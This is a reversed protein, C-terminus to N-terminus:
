PDADSDESRSLVGATISDGILSQMVFLCLFAKMVGSNYGVRHMGVLHEWCFFICAELVAWNVFQVSFDISAHCSLLFCVM